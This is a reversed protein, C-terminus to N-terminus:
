QLHNISSMQKPCKEIGPDPVVSPVQGPRNVYHKTKKKKPIPAPFGRVKLNNLGSNEKQKKVRSGLQKNICRWKTMLLSNRWVKALYKLIYKFLICFKIHKHSSAKWGSLFLSSLFCLWLLSRQFSSKLLQKYVPFVSSKWQSIITM